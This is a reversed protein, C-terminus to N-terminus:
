GGLVRLTGVSLAVTDGVSVYNTNRSQPLKTWKEYASQAMSGFTPPSDLAVLM